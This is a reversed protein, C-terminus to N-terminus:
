LFFVILDINLLLPGLILGQLVGYIIRLTNSSFSDIKKIQVRDSLFTHVVTWSKYDFLHLKAILLNHLFCDFVKSFNIIVATNVRNVNHPEMMEKIM